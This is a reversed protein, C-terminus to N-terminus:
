EREPLSSQDTTGAASPPPERRRALSLLDQGAALVLALAVALSSLGVVVVLLETPTGIGQRLIRWVAPEQSGAILVLIGVVLCGVVGLVHRWSRGRALVILGLLLALIPFPPSLATGGGQFFDQAVRDPHGVGGFEYPLRLVIALAAGLSTLGLLLLAIAGVRNIRM